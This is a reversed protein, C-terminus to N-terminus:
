ESRPIVLVDKLGIALHCKLYGSNKRRSMTGFSRLFCNLIRVNRIKEGFAASIVSSTSGKEDPPFKKKVHEEFREEMMANDHSQM